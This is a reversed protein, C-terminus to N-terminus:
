EIPRKDEGKGSYPGQKVEVIRTDELMEIGHGGDVFLITDGASLEISRFKENNLDYLDVIVGGKKIYVIEQVRDIVTERKIHYHPKIEHGRKHNLIGLQLPYDEKSVFNIGEKEFRDRVVIAIVEGGGSKIEEFENM